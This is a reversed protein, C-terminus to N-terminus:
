PWTLRLAVPDLEHPHSRPPTTPRDLRVVRALRVVVAVALVSLVLVLLFHSM